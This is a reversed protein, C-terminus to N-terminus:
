APDVFFEIDEANGKSDFVINRSAQGHSSYNTNVLSVKYQRHPNLMSSDYSITKVNKSEQLETLGATTATDDLAPISVDINAKTSASGDSPTVDLIYLRMEKDFSSYNNITITLAHVSLSSVLLSLSILPKKM